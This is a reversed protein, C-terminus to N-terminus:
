VPHRQHPLGLRQLHFPAEIAVAIGLAVDARAFRDKADIVSRRRILELEAGPEHGVILNLLEGAARRAVSSHFSALPRSEGTTACARRARLHDRTEPVGRCRTEM